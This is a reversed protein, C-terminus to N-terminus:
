DRLGRTLNTRSTQANVRWLTGLPFTSTSLNAHSDYCLCFSIFLKQSQLVQCMGCPYHYDFLHVLACDERSISHARFLARHSLIGDPRGNGDRQELDDHTDGGSRQTNEGLSEM